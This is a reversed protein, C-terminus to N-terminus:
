QLIKLSEDCIRIQGRIVRILAFLNLFSPVRSFTCGSKEQQCEKRNAPIRTIRPGRGDSEPENRQPSEARQALNKENM